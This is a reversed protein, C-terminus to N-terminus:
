SATRGHKGVFYPLVARMDWFMKLTDLRGALEPPAGMGIDFAGARQFARAGAILGQIARADAPSLRTLEAAIGDLDAGILASKGSPEDVLRGYEAMDSVTDPAATGLDRYLDHIAGGRHNMLFHIGGDIHYADRRWWAAVGGPQGAHEFIHAQYGAQQAYVGAALGALGAGIIIVTKDSM